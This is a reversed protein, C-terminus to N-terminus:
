MGFDEPLIHGARLANIFNNGEDRFNRRETLDAILELAVVGEDFWDEYKDVEQQSYLGLSTQECDPCRLLATWHGESAPYRELPQVLEGNCARCNCMDRVVTVELNNTDIRESM